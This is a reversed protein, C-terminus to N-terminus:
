LFQITSIHGGHYNGHTAWSLFGGGGAFHFFAIRYAAPCGWDGSM